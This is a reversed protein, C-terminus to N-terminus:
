SRHSPLWLRPAPARTAIFITLFTRGAPDPHRASQGGTRVPEHFRAIPHFSMYLMTAEISCLKLPQSVALNYFTSVSRSFACVLHLYTPLCTPLYTPSPSSSFLFLNTTTLITKESQRTLTNTPLGSHLKSPHYVLFPQLQSNARRRLTNPSDHKPRPCWEASYWTSTKAAQLYEQAPQLGCSASSSFWLRPLRPGNAPAARPKHLQRADTNPPRQIYVREGAAPRCRTLM